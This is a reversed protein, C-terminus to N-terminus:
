LLLSGDTATSGPLLQLFGEATLCASLTHAANATLIGSAAMSALVDALPLVRADNQAALV